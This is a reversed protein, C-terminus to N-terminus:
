LKELLDPCPAPMLNEQIWDRAEVAKRLHRKGALWKIPLRFRIESTPRLGLDAYPIMNIVAGMLAQDGLAERVQEDRRFPNLSLSMNGIKESDLM